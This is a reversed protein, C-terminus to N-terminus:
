SAARKRESPPEGPESSRAMEDPNVIPGSPRVRRRRVPRAPLAEANAPASATESSPGNENTHTDPEPSPPIGFAACWKKLLADKVWPWSASVVPAALALCKGLLRERTASRLHEIRTTWERLPAEIAAEITEHVQEQTEQVVLLAELRARVEWEFLPLVRSPIGRSSGAQLARNVGLEVLVAKRTTRHAVRASDQQCRRLDKKHQALQREKEAKQQRLDPAFLRNRIVTGRLTREFQPMDEIALTGLEELIAVKAAAAMEPTIIGEPPHHWDVLHSCLEALLAERTQKARATEPGAVQQTCQDLGTFPNSSRMVDPANKRPPDLATANNCSRNVARSGSSTRTTSKLYTPCWRLHGKVAQENSFQRQCFQCSSM